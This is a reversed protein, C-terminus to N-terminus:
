GPRPVIEYVRTESQGGVTATVTFTLAGNTYPRPSVEISEIFQAVVSQQGNHDRVFETGGLTYTITNVTGDWETWSLTLPFGDSDPSPTPTLIQAMQADHSVWYGANQAQRVAIMHNNTRASGIVVQFITTTIGGTIVGSIAIAVLLEILTFGKQNKHFL